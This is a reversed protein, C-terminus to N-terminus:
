EEISTIEGTRYNSITDISSIWFWDLPGSGGGIFRNSGKESLVNQSSFYTDGNQGAVGNGYLDDVRQSYSDGSSWEAMLALLAAINTNYTTTGGILIDGGSGATLTNAGGGGILIDAGNGGTLSDNGTEGVLINDASSGSVNLVDAGNGGIIVAPISVDVTQGAITAPNERITEKSGQGYILMHGITSTPTPIPQNAGNIIVSVPIPNTTPAIVITGGTAPAGIALATESNDAPDAELAISDITVPQTANALVDGSSDLVTLKITYTGAATYVHDVTLGSQGSITQFAKGNGVWDIKFTYTTNAPIGAQSASITFPLPQGPVGTPQGALDFSPPAINAALNDLVEINGETGPAVNSNSTDIATLEDIGATTLAATFVHEGADAKTFKYTMDAVTVTDDFGSEIRNGYRDEATVTFRHTVGVLTTSPFGSVALQSVVSPSVTIKIAPVKLTPRSLDTVTITQVGATALTVTFIQVGNVLPGPTIVAQKDNSTVQLSDAFQADTKNAATLATVALTITSGATIATVKSGSSNEAAAVLHTAPSVVSISDSGFIKNADMVMLAQSVPSAFTVPITVSGKNAAKFTVTIPQFNSDSSTLEVTGTYSAVTRNFPDVATITLSKATGAIATTSSSSVNFHDITGGSLVSVTGAISPRALDTVTISEEGPANLTVTFTMSGDPGAEFQTNSPLDANKDSSQFRLYDDLAVPQDASNLPTVSLTVVEDMGMPSTISDVVVGLHTAATPLPTVEVTNSKGTTALRTTDTVTVSQEGTSNLTVTFQETGNTGSFVQSAPLVAFPDSSTFQVTGDYATDPKGNLLAEVTVTFQQGTTTHGLNAPALSVKFTPAAVVALTASAAQLDSTSSALVTYYGVESPSLHFTAVGNVVPEILTGSLKGGTPKSSVTLTVSGSYLIDPAGNAGAAVVKVTTSGGALAQSPAQVILQDAPAGADIANTVANTDLPLNTDFVVAASASVSPTGTLGSKAEITYNVFADGIGATNDAPLFGALPNLPTDLTTPDLSRFTWTVVGTTIDLSATVDVLVGLDSVADVVTHYSTLGPPVQIVYNGFGISGLQFTSWDLNPDLQETVVVNQAPASATPDNEFQIEYPLTQGPVVADESGQGTPGVMDNPDCPVIQESTAQEKYYVISEYKLNVYYAFQQCNPHYPDFHTFQDPSRVGYPNFPGPIFPYPGLLGWVAPLGSGLTGDFEDWQSGMSQYADSAWQVAQALAEDDSYSQIIRYQGQDIQQQNLEGQKSKGSLTGNNFFGAPGWGINSYYQGNILVKKSKFFFQAHPTDQTAIELTAWLGLPDIANVPDNGVYRRTNSDGGALGLPDNSTFRGQTPDYQRYDMTVLGSAQTVDFNMGDFTFPNAITSETTQMEGFPLYEYQNVYNGSSDTIGVVNGVDDSDFYYNQGGTTESVLGIGATYQAQVNGSGDLIGTVIGLSSYDRQYVTTQGASTSSYELGFPDYQYTTTGSPTALAIMEDLSNYTYTTTVGNQTQSITNGDADYQYSTDGIQTYENMDNTTYDTTGLASDIVQVRNGEADYQYQITRGGPLDIEILENDADYSYYTTQGGTTMSTVLGMSDYTYQYESNITSGGAAYNIISLLNGDSDYQYTVSTGNGNFKEILRGDPDYTYTVINDGNADTLQILQGITNYIYNATYGTQDESQIREGLSNYTFKLYEGGPYDIELLDGASDYTFTFTGISNTASTLLGESNYTFSATTGDSFTEGILQGNSNYTFGTAEGDGDVTEILDGVSNYSNETTGGNAYAEADVNGTTPDITYNTTNGNADTFGTLEDFTSDYTYHLQNGLADTSEILNGNSDYESTTATGNPYITKVLDGSDDYVYQTVNGLPDIVQRINGADDFLYQTTFNDADTVSFGGALGYTVTALKQGGVNYGTIRGESDYSYNTPTGGDTAISTLADILAPNSTNTSYTYNITGASSSVQILQGASNYTYSTVNGTPDAIGSVFGQANYDLILVSGNSATLSTLQGEANYGCTVRNSDSDEIFNLTGNPNFDYLMGGPVTLQVHGSSLVNATGSGAVPDSYTGATPDLLFTEVSSGFQFDLNGDSDTYVSDDWNDTWGPGFPGVTQREDITQNFQRVIDLSIQGPVPASADTSSPIVSPLYGGDAKAIEFGMLRNLDNTYVGMESLYTADADFAAQLDATTNGINTALNAMIANAAVAPVSSPLLSSELSSWDITASALEGLTFNSTVLGGNYLQDGGEITTPQFPITLTGQYGPPLIGAPGSTDIALVDIENGVDYFGEPSQFNANNSSVVLIPAAIDTDGTNAYTITVSADTFPARIQAPAQLNVQLNGVPGGAVVTFAGADTYITSGSQGISLDYSGGALGTLNFTAFLTTSSQFIVTSAPDETAGRSLTVTTTPTFGTGTITVTASGANSGYNPSLGTIESTLPTATITFNSGTGAAAEGELQIYYTGAQAGSIVLSQTSAASNYAQEDYTADLIDPPTQYQAALDVAGASTGSVTIQVPQAAPLNFEYYADQGNCITGSAPTGLTLTDVGITIPTASVLLNNARDYDPVLGQSDVLLLVNYSGPALSPVASTLSGTYQGGGAVIGNQSVQGLMVSSSDIEDSQSLYLSDVWSSVQTPDSANNQVTYNVTIGQGLSANAPFSLSVPQLDVASAQITAVIDTSNVNLSFVQSGRGDQDLNVQTFSGTESAYNLLSYADGAVPGYDNVVSLGLTGALIASGTAAIQGFQGSAPSGGIEMQLTASSTQTYDGDINLTSGAGLTISGSSTLGSSAPLTADNELTLSGSNSGLGSVGAISADSGSLTITAANSTIDTGSPLEITAGNLANWTGGTLTSGNIQTVSSAELDITGSDAEITGTNTFTQNVYIVSVGSGGTKRIIGANEVSDFFSDNSPDSDIGSDSEFLVLAGEENIFTTTSGLNSNLDLNGSGSQIITGYNYFTGSDTVYVDSSGSLDITGQNTANGSQCLINGGTWQFMGGSFDFTMGGPAPTITDGTFSVSGDGSATLTGGFSVTQEIWSSGLAQQGGALDISAGSGINFAAGGLFTGNVINVTVGSPVNFTTGGTFTGSSNLYIPVDISSLQPISFTVGSGSAPLSLSGSSFQISGADGIEVFSIPAGSEVDTDTFSALDPLNLVSGAGNCDLVVPGTDIQTLNTLDIQGGSLAEFTALDSIYAPGVSLNTLNPLSLLSGSGTAELTLAYGLTSDNNYSTLGSLDLTAGGSVEISSEDIDTLGTFSPNGGSVDIAGNMVSTIQGTSLTGDLVLDTYNLSTLLPADITGQNTAQLTSDLGEVSETMATLASLDLVSGEGDSELLLLGTNIESLKSLNIQGGVLAEFQASTYNNQFISTDITLSTLNALSLSTGTGTAEVTTPYGAPVTYSTVGTLTVTAGGNVDISTGDIDTLAAFSDTGGSIDIAGRTLSAIQETSLSSTGDTKLTAYALTSLSGDDITGGNIAQLTPMYLDDIDSSNESFSTLAPINLLSNAGSSELIISGGGIQALAPLDVEGGALAEVETASTYDTVGTLGTLGALSLVSGAGTAELTTLTGSSGNTGTYTTVAPLDLTGGGNIEFSSGDIDTVSGLSIPAGGSLTFTGDTYQTLQSASWVGTGDLTVNLGDMTALSGSDITGGDTVQLGSSPSGSFNTLAPVNLVSNTGDSELVAPVGNIATLGPLSVDGGVVAEVRTSSSGSISTSGNATLSTGADAAALSGGSIALAGSITSTGSSVTLSGGSISLTDNSGTAIAQIQISDSSQITITASASTDIVATDGSGPVSGTSWNSGVDWNGSGSNIWTVTAPVVRDELQECRM